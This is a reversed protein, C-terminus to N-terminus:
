AHVFRDGLESGDRPTNSTDAQRLLIQREAVELEVGQRTTAELLVCLPLEFVQMGDDSQDDDYAASSPTPQQQPRRTARSAGRSQTRQHNSRSRLSKGGPKALLPLGQSTQVNRQAKLARPSATTAHHQDLGGSATKPPPLLYGVTGNKQIHSFMHDGKLWETDWKKTNYFPKQSQVRQKMRRNEEAIRAQERKQVGRNILSRKICATGRGIAVEPSLYCDVIPTQTADLRIGPMHVRAPGHAPKKPSLLPTKRPPPAPSFYGDSGLPPRGSNSASPPPPAPTRPPLRRGTTLTNDGHSHSQSSSLFGAIRPSKTLGYTSAAALQINEQRHMIQEMKSALRHNQTTIDMQRERDLQKRKSNSVLHPQKSPANDDLYVKSPSLATPVMSQLKQHHIAQQRALTREYCLRNDFALKKNM